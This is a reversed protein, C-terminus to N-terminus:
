QWLDGSERQKVSQRAPFAIHVNCDANTADGYIDNDLSVSSGQSAIRALPRPSSHEQTSSADPFPLDILFQAAVRTRLVNDANSATDTAM